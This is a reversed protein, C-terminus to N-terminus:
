LSLWFVRWMSKFARDMSALHEALEKVHQILTKDRFSAANCEGWREIGDDTVRKAFVWNM